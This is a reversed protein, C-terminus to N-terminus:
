RKNTFILKIANGSISIHGHLPFVNGQSSLVHM